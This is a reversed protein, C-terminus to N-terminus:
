FNRVTSASTFTVADIQGDLLMRYIDKGDSREGQALTTHYAIVDTVEAGAERLGELLVDRGIDARPLLVRKDRLSGTARLAVLLAEARYADPTLDARAGYRLLCSATSPGVACITVGKLERVDTSATLRSMFSEVANASTFIIWDFSSAN